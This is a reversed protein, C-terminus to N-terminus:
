EYLLWEKQVENYQVKRAECLEWKRTNKKLFISMFMKLVGNHTVIILNEWKIEEAISNFVLKTRDIFERVTEREEIRTDFSFNSTLKNVHELSLGEYIGQDRERLLKNTFLPVELMESIIEGTQYARKLDSTLVGQINKNKFQHKINHVLEIGQKNLPIDSTGFIKKQNNFDTISHRLLYVNKIM